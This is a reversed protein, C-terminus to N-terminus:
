LSGLVEQGQLVGGEFQLARPDREQARRTLQLLPHIVSISAVPLVLRFFFNASLNGVVRCDPFFACIKGYVILSASM